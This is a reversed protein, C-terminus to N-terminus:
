KEIERKESIWNQIGKALHAAKTYGAKTDLFQTVAGTRSGSRCVLIFPQNKTTVLKEFELMFESVMPQRKENFFMIKKSDPIIGDAWEQPTRIDIIVVGQNQTDILKQSTLNEVVAQSVGSFM